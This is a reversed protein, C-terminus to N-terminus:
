KRVRAVITMQQCVNFLHKRARDFPVTRRVIAPLTEWSESPLYREELIEFKTQFNMNMYFWRETLFILHGPYMGEASNAYPVAFLKIGGPVLVRHSEDIVHDLISHEMFHSSRVEQVSEDPFPFPDHNLDCLIDPANEEDPIQTRVGELNDLGIFGEPKAYGSGLDIRLGHPSAQASAILADLSRWRSHLVVSPPAPADEGGRRAFLRGDRPM